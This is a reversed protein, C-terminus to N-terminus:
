PTLRRPDLHSSSVQVSRRHITAKADGPPKTEGVDLDGPTQIGPTEAGSQRSAAPRSVDLPSSVPRGTPAPSMAARTGASTVIRLRARTNQGTGDFAIEGGLGHWPSLHILADRVRTRNLGARRVAELLLRAADYTLVAADDPEHGRETAFRTRFDVWNPDGPDPQVLAPYRVSSAVSGALERFRHRGLGPGGFLTVEPLAGRVAAAIRAGDEAGAVIIVADPRLTVLAATQGTLDSADSRVVMQGDPLRGRRSCERRVAAATMRSAHDTATVLALRSGGERFGDFAAEVLTAAVARDSPACAFIWPVGALTATGDTAVPSVLPLNAKAVVQEALHTSASDVSGLLALPQDEFVMRALQSVGTGWPDVAWRSVFRIPLSPFNSTRLEFNSPHELESATVGPLPQTVADRLALNAAFWLDGHLPDALNTPGFWGLRIDSVNTLDGPPGYYGLTTERLNRFPPAEAAAAPLIAASLSLWGGIALPWPLDSTQLGFRSPLGFRSRRLRRRDTPQSRTGAMTM